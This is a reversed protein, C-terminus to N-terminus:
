KGRTMKFLESTMKMVYLVDNKPDYEIWSLPSQGKMEAPLAIPKSWTAGADTSEVIGDKTLVFMQKADKGFIPGYRGDKLKAIEKWSEGKDTTTILAGDVLWYLVGDHWKPIAQTTYEGCPKWTKGGDTTRLLAPKPKDKTKMEAVVATGKDFIWAPGYGKGIESFSKGADHSVILAGGSEHRLAMVFKMDPDTWDVAFWDVHNSKGDLTKWKDGADANIAIPGGYVTAIVLKKSKGTPDLMFCGPWETRGKFAGGVRKWTKGQDASRFVGQDSVNVYVEGTEHDVLVGCLGGYGPKESKLLETTVATWEAGSATMTIGIGLIITLLWRM